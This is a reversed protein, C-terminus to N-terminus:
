NEYNRNYNDLMTTPSWMGIETELLKVNENNIEMKKVAVKTGSKVSTAVFVEGAAGEGIKTMSKYLKTPDERSVLDSLRINSEEPLPVPQDRNVAACISLAFRNYPLVKPKPLKKKKDRARLSLCLYCKSQITWCKKRQFSLARSCQKGNLLYGLFDQLKTPKNKITCKSVQLPISILTYRISLM